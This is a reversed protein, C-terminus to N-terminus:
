NKNQITKLIVDPIEDGKILANQYSFVGNRNMRVMIEYSNDKYLRFAGTNYFKGLILNKCLEEIDEEETIIFSLHGNNYLSEQMEEPIEFIYEGDTYVSLMIEEIEEVKLENSFNDTDMGYSELLTLTNTFSPYIYYNWMFFADSVNFDFRGIPQVDCVEELTLQMIDKKYAAVIEKVYEGYGNEWVNSTGFAPEVEVFNIDNEDVSFIQYVAKKYAELSYVEAMSDYAEEIPIRYRRYIEKGNAKRFCVTIWTYEVGDEYKGQNEVGLRALEFVAEKETIVMNSLQYTTPSVWETRVGFQQNVITYYEHNSEIENFAISVSEIKNEQPLYSDYSFVDFYFIFAIVFAMIGSLLLQKKYSFMAHIDMQFLVEIFGHSLILGFLLGFIMWGLSSNGGLATFFAGSLLTIPIVLLVRCVPQIKPFAISKGAMESPRKQYLFIAAGLLLLMMVFYYFLTTLLEGTLSGYKSWDGIFYIFGLFSSTLKAPTDSVGGGYYYTDFFTMYLEKIGILSITYFFFIGLSLICTIMNGTVMVAIIATNYFLLYFILQVLLMVCAMGILSASMGSYAAAIVLCAAISVIFPVLYILIGNLYSVWFQTTRKVPIAHYLDVKNKSFLYAFGGIGCIIAGTVTVVSVINEPGFFNQMQVLFYEARRSEAEIYWKMEEMILLFVLPMSIFFAIVSLVITWTRRRIDERMLNFFSVKSTM